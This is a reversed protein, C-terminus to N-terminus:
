FEVFSCHHATCCHTQATCSQIASWLSSGEIFSHLPVAEVARILLPSTFPAFSQKVLWLQFLSGSRGPGGSPAFSQKLSRLVAELLSPQDFSAQLSLSPSTSTLMPSTLTWMQFLSGLRSQRLLSPSGWPAFSHDSSYLDAQLFSPTLQFLSGAFGQSGSLTSKWQLRSKRLSYVGVQHISPSGNGCLSGPSPFPVFSQKFSRFVLWVECNFYVEVATQSSSPPLVAHPAFSQDFFRLIAQLLSPSTLVWLSFHAEVADSGDQPLSPNWRM